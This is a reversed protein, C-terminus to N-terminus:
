MRIINLIKLDRSSSNLEEITGQFMGGGEFEFLYKGSGCLDILMKDGSLIDLHRDKMQSIYNPLLNLGAKSADTSGFGGTRKNGSDVYIAGEDVRFYVDPILELKFQAVATGAPLIFHGNSRIKDVFAQQKDEMLDFLRPEPMNFTMIIAWEQAYDADICGGHCELGALARGSKECIRARLNPSMETIIGTSVKTVLGPGFIADKNSFIDYWGSYRTAKEIKGSKLRFFTDTNM